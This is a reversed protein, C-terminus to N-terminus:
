YGNVTLAAVAGDSDLYAAVLDARATSVLGLYLVTAIPSGFREIDRGHFEDEALYHFATRNALREKLLSRFEEADPSADRAAAFGRAMGSTTRGESLATIAALVARTREPKPDDGAQAPDPLKLVPDVLGAVEHAIRLPNADALNVLVVVTLGREVYRAIHTEFGQWTGSHQICRSGRQEDIHWGFGYPYSYGVSLRVPTWAEALQEKSLVTAERLGKDWQVYDLITLYLAGDATTNLTPSVWDQNKLANDVFRYGAARNPVIDAESIVRATTMGLPGFVREQLFDGYFKGSASRIIAGLLVYGTNSYSWKSGPPFDLPLARAFAVLDEESYDRRLDLEAAGSANEYDPIGSTHTLLHRITIGNWAAPVPALWRALPDDLGLKGDAALLQISAATFQKGVSGSQFITEPRVAVHHEVNAEGYSGIRPMQGDRIIALALGPIQQRRMESRVADDITDAGATPAILAAAALLVPAPSPFRVWTLLKPLQLEVM